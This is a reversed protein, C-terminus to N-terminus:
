TLSLACHKAYTHTKFIDSLLLAWGTLSIVPPLSQSVLGGNCACIDHEKHGECMSSALSFKAHGQLTMKILVSTEHRSGIHGSIQTRAHRHRHLAICNTTCLSSFTSRRETIWLLLSGQIAHHLLLLPITTASHSARIKHLCHDTPPAKSCIQAWFCCCCVIFLYM